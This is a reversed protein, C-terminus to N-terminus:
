TERSSGRKARNTYARLRDRWSPKEAPQETVFEGRSEREAWEAERARRLQEGVYYDMLM